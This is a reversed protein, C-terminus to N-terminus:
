RRQRASPRRPGSKISGKDELYRRIARRISEGEAVGERQKLAKLGEALDHDIFFTTLKKPSM